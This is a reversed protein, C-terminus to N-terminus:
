EQRKVRPPDLVAGALWLAAAACAGAGVTLLWGVQLLITAVAWQLLWLPTVLTGGPCSEVLRRWFAVRSATVALAEVAAPDDMRCARAFPSASRGAVAYADIELPHRHYLFGEGAACALYLLIFPRVLGLGPGTEQMQLAHFAEHALLDLGEPTEPRWSSDRIYIRCLRPALVAPLAIGNAVHRLVHPLGLHFRVRGLDLTPYLAGLLRRAREPLEVEEPLLRRWLRRAQEKLRRGRRRGWSEM